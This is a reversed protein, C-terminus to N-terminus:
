MNKAEGAYAGTDISIRGQQALPHDVITHGHVVWIGDRRSRHAFNPHGWILVADEQESVPVMPDAGPYAYVYM